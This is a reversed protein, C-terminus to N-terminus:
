GLVEKLADLKGSIYNAEAIATLYAEMPMGNKLQGIKEDSMKSLKELAEIQQLIDKEPKM